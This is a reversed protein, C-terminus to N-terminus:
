RRGRAMQDLGRELEQQEIPESRTPVFPRGSGPTARHVSLAHETKALQAASRADLGQRQLQAQRQLTGDWNSGGTERVDRTRNACGALCLLVCALSLLRKM